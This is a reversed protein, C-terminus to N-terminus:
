VVSKRDLVTAQLLPGAKPLQSLDIGFITNVALLMANAVEAAAPALYPAVEMPDRRLDADLNTLLLIALFCTEVTDVGYDEFQRALATYIEQALQFVPLRRVERIWHTPLDLYLGARRRNRALILYMSLRQSISDRVAYPSERLIKLFVHRIDQREQYDCAIWRAYEEDGSVIEAQHFHIGFLETIAWRIRFEEGTVRSRFLM